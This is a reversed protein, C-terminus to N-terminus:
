LDYAGLGYQFVATPLYVSQKRGIKVKPISFDKEESKSVKETLNNYYGGIEKRKFYKGEDQKVHYISKGRLMNIWKIINFLNVAMSLGPLRKSTRPELTM